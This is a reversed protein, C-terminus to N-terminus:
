DNKLSGRLCSPPASPNAATVRNLKFQEDMKSAFVHCRLRAFKHVLALLRNDVDEPTIPETLDALKSQLIDNTTISELLLQCVNCSRLTPVLLAASIQEMLLLVAYLDDSIFILGGRDQLSTWVATDINTCEQAQIIFGQLFKQVDGKKTNKVLSRVLYGGVYHLSQHMDETPPPVEAREQIKPSSEASKALCM